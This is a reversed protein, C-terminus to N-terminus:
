SSLDVEFVVRAVQLFNKGGHKVAEFVIEYEGAFFAGEGWSGRRAELVATVADVYLRLKEEIGEV